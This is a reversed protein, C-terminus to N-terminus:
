LLIAIALQMRLGPGNQQNSCRPTRTRYDPGTPCRRKEWKVTLRPFEAARQALEKTDKEGLSITHLAPCSNLLNRLQAATLRRADWLNFHQLQPCHKALAELIISGECCHEIDIGELVPCKSVLAAVATPTMSVGVVSVHLTQLATCHKVLTALGEDTIGVRRGVHLVRPRAGCYKAIAATSVDTVKPSGGIVLARLQPCHWSLSM